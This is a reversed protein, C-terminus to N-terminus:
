RVADDAPAPHKQVEFYRMTEDVPRATYGASRLRALCAEVGPDCLVFAHDHARAFTDLDEMPAPTFPQEMTLAVGELVNQEHMDTLYYIRQKLEPSANWWLGPYLFSPQVIIPTGKSTSELKDLVKQDLPYEPTYVHYSIAFTCLAVGLVISIVTQSVRNFAFVLCTTGALGMVM